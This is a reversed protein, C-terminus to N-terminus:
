LIKFQKSNISFKGGKGITEVNELWKPGNKVYNMIYLVKKLAMEVM